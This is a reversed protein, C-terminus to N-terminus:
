SEATTVSIVRDKPFAAVTTHAQGARDSYFVVWDPSEKVCLAEVVVDSTSGGETEIKVTFKTMEDAYPDGGTRSFRLIPFKREVHHPRSRPM